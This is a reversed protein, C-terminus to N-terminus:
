TQGDTRGYAHFVEVGVPHIKIFSPMEAKKIVFIQPYFEFKILIWCSYRTRGDEPNNRPTFQKLVV